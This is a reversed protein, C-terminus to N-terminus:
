KEELTEFHRNLIDIIEPESISGQFGIVMAIEHQSLFLNKELVTMDKTIERLEKVALQRLDKIMSINVSKKIFEEDSEGNDCRKGRFKNERM